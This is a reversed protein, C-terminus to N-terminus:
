DQIHDSRVDFRTYGGSFKVLDTMVVDHISELRNGGREVIPAEWLRDTGANIMDNTM